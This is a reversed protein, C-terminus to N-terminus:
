ATDSAYASWEAVAQACVEPDFGNRALLAYAKQRRKRPDAERELSGRRKELLRGAAQLDATTEVSGPAGPDDPAHEAGREALAAVIVEPEIGKRLLEQRLAATGRPRARDRSAVWAAAYREDDLYGLEILRTVTAEVLGSPYGLTTLRRRM